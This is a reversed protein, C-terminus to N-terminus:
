KVWAMPQWVAATALRHSAHEGAVARGVLGVEGCQSRATERQGVLVRRRRAARRDAHKGSATVPYGAVGTEEGSGAAIVVGVIQHDAARAVIKGELLRTAEFGRRKRPEVLAPEEAKRVALAPYCARSAPCASPPSRRIWPVPWATASAGSVCKRWGRRSESDAPVPAWILHNHAPVWLGPLRGLQIRRVRGIPSTGQGPCSWIRGSRHRSRNGARQMLQDAICRGEAAPPRDFRATDRCYFRGSPMSVPSPM